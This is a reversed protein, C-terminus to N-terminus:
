FNGYIFPVVSYMDGYAGFLVLFVAVAIYSAWRVPLVAATIKGRIDVGREKVIGVALMAAMGILAIIWEKYDLGLGFISGGYPRFVSSLIYLGDRLSNAGFITEGILIILITRIHRFIRLGLNKPDVRLKAYLKKFLPEALMGAVIIVFYYMGYVIYKWEPGHWLGNCLWVAFLAVITPLMKTFHNKVKKKLKAAPGTVRPSLAVSYFVYEKLWAGLTIHWRQWFEQASKAFFPQRFNEPLRIGFLEGSGLAIDIFGSFDAYLQITYCVMFLISAIGSYQAPTDGITKVLLYLRDAVVMKKFLGWVIRQVGFLMGKADASHGEQLAAATQDYRCIPGELIQPFFCLFLCFKGFNREAAYKGRHIDVMYGIASLTYFSIGLPLALRLVPFEVKLGALSLLSSFTQGFFNYYKLVGILALNFLITLVIISKNRRVRKEAAAKEATPDANVDTKKESDEQVPRLVYRAAFYVSLATALLFVILYTSILLYFLLSFTLLVIWRGRKPVIYYVAVALLLVGFYILMVTNM